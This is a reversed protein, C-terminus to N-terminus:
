NRGFEVFIRVDESWSLSLILRDAAEMAAVLPIKLRNPFLNEQTAM